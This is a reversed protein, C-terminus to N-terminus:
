GAPGTARKRPLGAGWPGNEDRPRAGDASARSAEKAKSCPRNEMKGRPGIFRLGVRAWAERRERNPGAVGFALRATGARVGERHWQSCQGVRRLWRRRMMDLGSDVAGGGRVGRRGCRTGQRARWAAEAGIFSRSGRRMWRRRRELRAESTATKPDQWRTSDAAAATVM